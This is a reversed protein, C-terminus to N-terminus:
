QIYQIERQRDTQKKNSDKHRIFTHITSADADKVCDCAVPFASLNSAPLPVFNLRVTTIANIVCLVVYHGAESTMRDTVLTSFDLENAANKFNCTYNL